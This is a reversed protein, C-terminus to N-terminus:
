RESEIKARQEDGEVLVGAADSHDLIYACDKTPLSPYIGAGIAGISGLAFDFLVWEVTTRALIGFADGKGVGLALLGNALEDVTRRAEEWSVERLENDTEVLYATGTRSEARRWLNAITRTGTAREVEIAM